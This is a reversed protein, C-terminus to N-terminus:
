IRVSVMDQSNHDISPYDYPFNLREQRIQGLHQRLGTYQVQGRSCLAKVSIRSAELDSVLGLFPIM